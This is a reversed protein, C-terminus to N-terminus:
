HGAITMLLATIGFPTELVLKLEIDTPLVNIFHHVRKYPLGHNNRM